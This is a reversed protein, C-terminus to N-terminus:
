FYEAEAYARAPSPPVADLAEEEPAVAHGQASGCRAEGAVYDGAGSGDTHMPPLWAEKLLKEEALREKPVLPPEVASASRSGAARM